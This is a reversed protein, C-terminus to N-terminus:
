ILKFFSAVKYANDIDSNLKFYTIKARKAAFYDNSSDGLFYCDERKFNEKNIVYEIMETDPKPKFFDASLISDFYNIKNEKLTNYIVEYSGNSIIIQKFNLKSFKEVLTWNYPIFAGNKSNFKKILNLTNQDINQKESKIDFVYKLSKLAINPVFLTGEWDWFIIKL